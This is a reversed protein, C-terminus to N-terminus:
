IGKEHKRKSEYLNLSSPVPEAVNPALMQENVTLETM